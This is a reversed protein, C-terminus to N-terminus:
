FKGEDVISDLFTLPVIALRNPFLELWTFGLIDRYLNNLRLYNSIFCELTSYLLQIVFLATFIKVKRYYQLAQRCPALVETEVYVLLQSVFRLDSLLIYCLNLVLNLISGVDSVIVNLLYCTWHHCFGVLRSIPTSILLIMKISELFVKQSM